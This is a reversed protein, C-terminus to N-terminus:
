ASLRGGTSGGARAPLDDDASLAHPRDVHVRM